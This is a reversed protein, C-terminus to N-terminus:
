NKSELYEYFAKILLMGTVAGPDKKGISKKEMGFLEETNQSCRTLLTRRIM